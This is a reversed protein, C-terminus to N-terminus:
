RKGAVFDSWAARGNKEIYAARFASGESDSMDAYKERSVAAGVAGGSGNGLTKNTKQAANIREIEALAEASKDKGQDVPAKKTYGLAQAIGYLKKAVSAKQGHSERILDHIESLVMKQRTAEDAVGAAELMKNRTVIGYALADSFDANDKQFAAVDSTFFSQLSKQERDKQTEGRMEALAAELKVAKDRLWKNHAFIDSELDPEPAEEIKAAAKEEGKPLVETLIALRERAQVLNERLTQAEGKATKAEDKVRLFASRPVFRGTKTDIAKGEANITIEGDEMADGATPTDPDNGNAVVKAAPVEVKKTPERFLGEGKEGRSKFYDREADTKVESVAPEFAPPPAPNAGADPASTVVETTM